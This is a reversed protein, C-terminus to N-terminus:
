IVGSSAWRRAAPTSVQKSPHACARARTRAMDKTPLAERGGMTGVGSRGVAVATRPISELHKVFSCALLDAKFIGYFSFHGERASMAGGISRSGEKRGERRVMELRPPLHYLMYPM